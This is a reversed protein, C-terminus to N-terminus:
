PSHPRWRHRTEMTARHLCASRDGSPCPCASGNRVSMDSSAKPLEDGAARAREARAPKAWGRAAQCSRVRVRWMLVLSNLRKFPVSRTAQFSILERSMV